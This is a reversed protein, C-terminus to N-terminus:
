NGPSESRGLCKRTAWIEALCKLKKTALIDGLCKLKRTALIERLCKLKRTALIEGLCKLKSTAWIGWVNGPPGLDGGSMEQHGLDGEYVEVEQHGLDRESMEVEQHGFDGGSVEVEQNGLDGGSVEVQQHGMNAVDGSVALRSDEQHGLNEVPESQDQNDVDKMLLPLLGSNCSKQYDQKKGEVLFKKVCYLRTKSPYRANSLQIHKWHGNKKVMMIKSKLTIVM